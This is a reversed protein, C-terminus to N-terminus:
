IAVKEILSNNYDIDSLLEKIEKMISNYEGPYINLENHLENIRDHIRQVEIEDLPTEETTKLLIQENKKSM